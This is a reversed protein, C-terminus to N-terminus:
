SSCCMSLQCRSRKLAVSWGRTQITIAPRVTLAEGGRGSVELTLFRAHEQPKDPNVKVTRARQFAEITRLRENAAAAGQVFCLSVSLPNLALFRACVWAM